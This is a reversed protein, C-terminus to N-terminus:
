RVALLQDAPADDDTLPSRAPRWGPWRRAGTPGRGVRGRARPPPCRGSPPWWSSTAAPRARAPRDAARRRVGDLLTAAEARMLRLEGLDIVNLAYVGAPACSGACRARDVGAHGPAVAGRPRRLRRGGGRRGLARPQDRMTMRADGELVRLAPSTRLGLRERALTSWTATWRWCARARARGPPRWGAPCRSGAAAWSCPTWRGAARRRGTSRTASGARTTSSWGHAPRGPGRVLPAPRGAGPDPGVGAGPRPRRARLPLREGRRVAALGGRDAHGRGPAAVVVVVAGHSRARCGAPGRGPRGGGGGRGRRDGLHDGSLRPVLVFGTVFTGALAGPPPGRRSAASCRAAPAWTACSSGPWRPRSRASCRPRGAAAGRVDGGARGADGSGRLAPGLLRVVPVTLLALM